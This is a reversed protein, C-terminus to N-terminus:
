IRRPPLALPVDIYASTAGWITVIRAGERHGVRSGEM